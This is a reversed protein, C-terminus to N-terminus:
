ASNPQQNQTDISGGLKLVLSQLQLASNHKAFLCHGLWRAFTENGKREADTFRLFYSVKARLSVM